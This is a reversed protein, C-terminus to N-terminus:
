LLPIYSKALVTFLLFLCLYEVHTDCVNIFMLTVSMLLSTIPNGFPPGSRPGFTLYPFRPFYYTKLYSFTKPSLNHSTLMYFTHSFKAETLSLIHIASTSMYFTEHNLSPVPVLQKRWQM